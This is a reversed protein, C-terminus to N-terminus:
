SVDELHTKCQHSSLTTSRGMKLSTTWSRWSTSVIRPNPFHVWSTLAGYMSYSLKFTITSPCRMVLLSEGKYNANAVNGLSVELTKMCLLGIFDARGFRQKPVSHVTTDEMHLQMASRSLEYDRSQPFVGACYVMQAYEISTRTMGCTADVRM